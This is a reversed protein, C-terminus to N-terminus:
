DVLAAVVNAAGTVGEKKLAAQRDAPSGGTPAPRGPNGRERSLALKALKANAETVKALEARLEDLEAKIHSAAVAEPEEPEEDTPEEDTPEEPEEDTPEEEEPEEPEDEILMKLAEMMVTQNEVIPALTEALAEGFLAKLEEPDMEDENILNALQATLAEDLSGLRQDKPTSCLSLETIVPGYTTGDQVTFERELGVSVHSFAGPEYRENFAVKLWVGAKKGVVDAKAALLHGFEGHVPDHLVHVPLRVPDSETLRAQAEFFDLVKQTQDAVHAAREPTVELMLRNGDRTNRVWTEGHSLAFIWVVRPEGPTPISALQMLERPM